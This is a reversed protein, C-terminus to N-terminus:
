AAARQQRRRARSRRQWEAKIRRRCTRCERKNGRMLLNKGALPHGHICHTQKARQALPSTGRRINESATVPELHAPNCCITNRCLHDLQLGEPIPGVYHEYAWRHAYETRVSGDTRSGTCFGGYRLHAGGEGGLWLWCTNVEAVRLHFRTEDPTGPAAKLKLVARGTM